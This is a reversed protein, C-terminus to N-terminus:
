SERRASTLMALARPPHPLKAFKFKNVMTPPHAVETPPSYKLNAMLNALLHVRSRYKAFKFKNGKAETPPRKRPRKKTLTALMAVGGLLKAVKFKSTQSTVLEAVPKKTEQVQSQWPCRVCETM